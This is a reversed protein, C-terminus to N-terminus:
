TLAYNTWKGLESWLEAHIVSDCHKIKVRFM